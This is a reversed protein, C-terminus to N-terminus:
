PEHGLRKIKATVFDITNAASLAPITQQVPDIVKDFNLVYCRSTGTGYGRLGLGLMFQIATPELKGNNEHVYQSDFCGADALEKRFKAPSKHTSACFENFAEVTLVALGEERVLRLAPAGRVPMENVQEARNSTSLVQGRGILGVLMSSFDEEPTRIYESTSDRMSAMHALSWRYLQGLKFNVLGLEKMVKAAMLTCAVTYIYFREKSQREGVERSLKEVLQWLERRVQDYNDMAHRVVMAAVKGYGSRVSNTLQMFEGARSLSELKPYNELPIEFVRMQAAEPSVRSETLKQFINKNGTIFSFGRWPPSAPRPTGDNRLRARAVGNSLMYLIHSTEQGSKNTMEDFLHPVNNFTSCQVEVAGSSVEDGTLVNKNREVRGFASLAIKCVTSKGYGSEDSTLAIPIGNFEEADLIKVYISGLGACIAFQFPEGNPLNYLQDVGSIWEEADKADEFLGSKSAMHGNVRVQSSGTPEILRDGILFKDRGIWGMQDYTHTDAVHKKLLEIYSVAYEGLVKGNGVFLGVSNVLKTLARPDQVVEHPLIFEAREGERPFYVADSEQKGDARIALSTIYFPREAALKWTPVLEPAKKTGINEMTKVYLRGDQGIKADDPFTIPTFEETQGEPNVFKVPQAGGGYGLAIPSNCREICTSCPGNPDEKRFSSCLTAGSGRWTDIKLQTEEYTYGPFGNASWEHIRDKGGEAYYLVGIVKWWIPYTVNGNERFRAIQGCRKSILDPDAQTFGLSEAPVALADNVSPDFALRQRAQAGFVASEFRDVPQTLAKKSLWQPAIPYAEGTGKKVDHWTTGVPRLVRAKDSVVSKDVLLNFQATLDKFADAIRQWRDAEIAEDYAWYVHIGKGSSIVMSPQPLQAEKVFRALEETAARQSPYSDGKEKLVDLDLWHAKFFRANDQKRGGDQSAFTANAHYINIPRHANREIFAVMDEHTEGVWHDRWTAGGGHTSVVKEGDEPVVLRLFELTSLPM